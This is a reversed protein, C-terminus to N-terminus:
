EINKNKKRYTRKKSQENSEKSQTQDQMKRNEKERYFIDAVKQTIKILGGCGKCSSEKINEGTIENYTAIMKKPSLTGNFRVYRYNTATNFQDEYKKLESFQEDTM